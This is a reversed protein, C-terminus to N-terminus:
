VQCSTYTTKWSPPTQKTKLARSNQRYRMQIVYAQRKHKVETDMTVITNAMAPSLFSGASGARKKKKKQYHTWLGYLLLVCRTNALKVPPSFEQQCREGGRWMSAVLSWNSQKEECCCNNACRDGGIFGTDTIVGARAGATMNQKAKTKSDGRRRMRINMNTSRLISPM